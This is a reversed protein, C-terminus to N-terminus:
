PALRQRWAKGMRGENATALRRGALTRHGRRRRNRHARSTLVRLRCGPHSHQAARRRRLLPIQGGPQGIVIVDQRCDAPLAAAIQAMVTDPTLPTPLPTM